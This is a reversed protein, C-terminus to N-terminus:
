PIRKRRQVRPLLYEMLSVNYLIDATKRDHMQGIPHAAFDVTFKGEPGLSVYAETIIYRGDDANPDDCMVLYIHQHYNADYEGWNVKEFTVDRYGAIDFVLSLQPATLEKLNVSILHENSM